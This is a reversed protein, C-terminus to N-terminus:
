EESPIPATAAAPILAPSTQAPAPDARRSAPKSAATPDFAVVDGDSIRRLWTPSFAVTDGEVPLLQRTGPYFVRRGKCPKISITRVPDNM